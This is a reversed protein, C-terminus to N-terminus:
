KCFFSNISFVWYDCENLIMNKWDIYNEFKRFLIEGDSLWVSVFLVSIWSICNYLSRLLLRCVCDVMDGYNNVVDWNEKNLYLSSGRLNSRCLRLLAFILSTSSSSCPRINNNRFLGLNGARLISIHQLCDELM